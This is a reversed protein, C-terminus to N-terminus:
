CFGGDILGSKVIEYTDLFFSSNPSYYLYAENGRNVRKNTEFYFDDLSDFFVNFDSLNAKLTLASITAYSLPKNLDSTNDVASLGIDNKTLFVDGTKGNVSLVGAYCSPENFIVVEVPTSENVIVVEDPTASLEIIITENM